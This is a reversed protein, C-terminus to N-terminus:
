ENQALIAAGENRPSLVRIEGDVELRDLGRRAAEAAASLRDTTTIGYITPGWSSQGVGAVAPTDTLERVADRVAPHYADAQENRFWRGNYRDIRAVGRGFRDVDNTAIGPLVELLTTTAVHNTVASNAETLVRTMSRREDKGHVTRDISPTITVFRWSPPVAHQCVVPPVSWSNRDECSREHGADLAFGGSEFAAIGIGSRRGRGVASAFEQVQFSRDHARAVAAGVALALQTTSGFGVHRPMKTDLSVRAGDVELFTVADSVFGKIAPENCVIDAAPSARVCVGPKDVAVGLSGYVRGHSPALNIFGFHLRAGTEVTVSMHM